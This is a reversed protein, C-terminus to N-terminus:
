TVRAHKLFIIASKCYQRMFLQISGSFTGSNSQIYFPVSEKQSHFGFPSTQFFIRTATKWVQQWTHFLLAWYFSDLCSYHLDESIMWYTKTFFLSFEFPEDYFWTMGFRYSMFKRHFVLFANSQKQTKFGTSKWQTSLCGEFYRRKCEASSLLDYLKPIRHPHTFTKPSSNRSDIVIDFFLIAGWRVYVCKKSQVSTHAFIEWTCNLLCKILGQAGSFETPISFWKVRSGAFAVEGENENERKSQLHTEREGTVLTM